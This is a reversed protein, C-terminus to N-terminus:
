AYAHNSTSDIYRNYANHSKGPSTANRNATVHKNNNKLIASLGLVGALERSIKKRTDVVNRIKSYCLSLRNKEAKPFIKYIM